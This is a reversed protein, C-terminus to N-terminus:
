PLVELAILASEKARKALPLFTIRRSFRSRKYLKITNTIVADFSFGGFNYYTEIARTKDHKIHIKEVEGPLGYLFQGTLLIM